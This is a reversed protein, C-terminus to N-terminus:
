SRPLFFRQLEHLVRHLLRMARQRQGLFNMSVLTRFDASTVMYRVARELLTDVVDVVDGWRNELDDEDEYEDEDFGSFKLLRNSLNLLRDTVATLSADFTSDISREFSIDHSGVASAARTTSVLLKLLNAQWEPYRKPDM